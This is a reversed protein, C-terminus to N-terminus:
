NRERYEIKNFTASAATSTFRFVNGHEEPPLQTQAPKLQNVRGQWRVVTKGGMLIAIQAKGGAGTAVQFTMEVKRGVDDGRRPDIYTADNANEIWIVHTGATTYRVSAGNNGVPLYLIMGLKKGPDQRNVTMQVRLEYGRTSKVPMVFSANKCTIQGESIDLDTWLNHKEPNFGDKILNVWETFKADQKSQVIEALRQKAKEDMTRVRSALTDRKNYVEFFHSYWERARILMAKAYADEAEEALAIYWDGVSAADQPSAKDLGAVCLNLVRVLEADDALPAYKAANIPDDRKVALLNVLERAAPKNQPNAELSRTLLDIRRIVDYTDSLRKYSAEASSRLDSGTQRAISNAQRSADKAQKYDGKAEFDDAQEMLLEIYHDGIPGRETRPTVRFARDALEVLNALSAAKHDPWLGRLQKAASKMTELDGVSAALPISEIYILCQVGPDDPIQPGLAMMQKLVKKDDDKSRTRDADALKTKYLKDFAQQDDKTVTRTAQAYAATAALAVWGALLMTRLFRM